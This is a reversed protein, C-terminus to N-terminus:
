SSNITATEIIKHQLNIEYSYVLPVEVAAFYLAFV